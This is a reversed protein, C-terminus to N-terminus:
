KNNTLYYEGSNPYFCTEKGDEPLMNCEVGRPWTYEYVRMITGCQRTVKECLSRCPLINGKVAGRGRPLVDTCIPTYFSCLFQAFYPSCNAEVLPWYHVLSRSADNQHTQNFYNPFQVWNYGASACIRLKLPECIESSPTRLTPSPARSTSPSSSLETPPPSSLETPPSSLETSPSFGWITSPSSPSSSVKSATSSSEEAPPLSSSKTNPSSPKLERSTSPSFPISQSTSPRNLSSFSDTPSSSLSPLSMSSSATSDTDVRVGADVVNQNETTPTEYYTATTTPLNGGSESLTPKVLPDDTTLLRSIKSRINQLNSKTPELIAGRTPKGTSTKVTTGETLQQTVAKTNLTMARSPGNESNESTIQLTEDSTTKIVLHQTPTEKTAGKTATPTNTTM